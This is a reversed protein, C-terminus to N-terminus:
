ILFKGCMDPVPVIAMTDHSMSESPTSAETDKDGFTSEQVNSTTMICLTATVEKIDPPVELM